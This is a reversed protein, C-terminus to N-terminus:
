RFSYRFRGNPLGGCADQTEEEGFNATYQVGTRVPFLENVRFFGSRWNNMDPPPGILFVM